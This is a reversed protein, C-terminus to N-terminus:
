FNGNGEYSQGFQWNGPAISDFEITKGESTTVQFSLSQGVLNAGTQWVQGWNRSMQLWGSNSGKIRVSTVDGAGGVNYVLATIWYPNGKLEFKVGGTKYCSVRRYKVPVIGAKYQAIKTFMPLSLDFHDNPPNCWGGSPNPPCFNTATVKITGANPICWQPDHVCMIQFCAGCSLGNNFLTTSLATTQLGYGQQFLDGYGCAGQMTEGGSMDGYTFTAHAYHWDHDPNEGIPNSMTHGSRWLIIIIFVKAGGFLNQFKSMTLM